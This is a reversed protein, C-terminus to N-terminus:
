KDWADNVASIKKALKSGGSKGWQGLSTQQGAPTQAVQSLRQQQSWANQPHTKGSSLLQQLTQKQAKKKKGGQAPSASSSSVNSDDDTLSQQQAAATMSSSSSSSGAAGGGLTPWSAASAPPPPTAAAPQQQQKAAAPSSAAVTGAAAASWQAAPRPVTSATNSSGVGNMSSSSSSSSSPRGAAATHVKPRPASCVECARSSPANVLTCRECAWSGKQEVEQLAAMAAEPPVWGKGGTSSHSSYALYDRHAAVLASRKDDDPCLAALQPVLSALGLQM